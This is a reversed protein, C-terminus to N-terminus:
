FVHIYIHVHPFYIVKKRVHPEKHLVLDKVLKLVAPITDAGILRAAASLAACVEWQNSSKLDRQLTNVLLILLESSLATHNTLLVMAGNQVM